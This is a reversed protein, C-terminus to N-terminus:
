RPRRCKGSKVTAIGDTSKEDLKCGGQPYTCPSEGVPYVDYGAARSAIDDRATSQVKATCREQGTGGAM